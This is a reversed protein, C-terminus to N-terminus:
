MLSKMGCMPFAALCSMLVFLLYLGCSFTAGGSVWCRTENPPYGLLVMLGGLHVVWAVIVATLGLSSAHEFIRPLTMDYYATLQQMGLVAAGAIVALLSIVITSFVAFFKVAPNQSALLANM